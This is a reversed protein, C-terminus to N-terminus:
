IPHDTLHSTERDGRSGRQQARNAKAQGIQTLRM